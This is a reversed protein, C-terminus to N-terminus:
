WTIKLNRIETFLNTNPYTDINGTGMALSILKFSETGPLINKVTYLIKYPTDTFVKYYGISSYFNPIGIKYGNGTNDIANSENTNVALQQNVKNHTVLIVIEVSQSSRDGKCSLVKMEYIGSFPQINYNSDVNNGFCMTIKENLVRIEEKLKQNEKKLFEVNTQAFFPQIYLLIITTFLYKM